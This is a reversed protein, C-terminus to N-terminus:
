KKMNSAAQCDAQATGDMLDTPGGVASMFDGRRRCSRARCSMHDSEMQDCAMQHEVGMKSDGDNTMPVESGMLATLVVTVPM